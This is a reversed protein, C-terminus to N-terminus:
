SYTVSDIEEEIAMLSALPDEARTIPRGIVLYNSGERIAEAPTMIRKQDNQSAEAPRIGPTVLCFGNGFKNRLQSVERASCVIGDLQADRAMEALSLVQEKITRNIGIDDLDTQSMSTLVTVAILLPPQSQREIAERAACLMARGGAAHVNLMWVGLDAAAVCASAVTNPIDHYKLDLFIDYGDRVFQEILAPGARAFLEKGVKLRCREPDLQSTLKIAASPESFDLAVIICSNNM